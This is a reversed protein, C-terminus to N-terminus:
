KIVVKKGNVIYIGKTVKQTRVGSITYIVDNKMESENDIMSIGTTNSNEKLRINDILYDAVNSQIGLRLNFTNGITNNQDIPYSKETWTTAAAQEIYDDDEHIKFDDAQVLMKKCNEDGSNRYLM